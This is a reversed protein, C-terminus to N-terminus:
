FRNIEDAHQKTATSCGVHIGVVKMLEVIANQKRYPFVIWNLEQVKQGKLSYHSGQVQVEM